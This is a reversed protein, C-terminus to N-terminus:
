PRTGITDSIFWTDCLRSGCDAVFLYDLKSPAFWPLVPHRRHHRFVPRANRRVGPVLHYIGLHDVERALTAMADESTARIYCAALPPSPPTLLPTCSVDVGGRSFIGVFSLTMWETADAPSQSDWSNPAYANIHNSDDIAGGMTWTDDADNSFLYPRAGGAADRQKQFVPKSNFGEGDLMLYTGFISPQAALADASTSRVYCTVSNPLPPPPPPSPPPPPAPPSHPPFIVAGAAACSPPHQACGAIPAFGIRGNARDFVTYYAELVAQGLINVTGRNMDVVLEYCQRSSRATPSQQMYTSPPVSLTVGGALEITIAPLSSVDEAAWYHRKVYAAGGLRITSAEDADGRQGYAQALAEVIPTMVTHFADQLLSLTSTGSDVITNGDACKPDSGFPPPSSSPTEMEVCYYLSGDTVPTYQISGTHLASSIGGITLTGTALAAGDWPCCQLSFVDALGHQRVIADLLTTENLPPPGGRAHSAGIMGDMQQTAPIEGLDCGQLQGGHLFRDDTQIGAFSTRTVLEGLRMVAPECVHGIWSTGDGYTATVDAGDCRGRYYRPCGVRPSAAIATFHSGTDFPLEYREGDIEVTVAHFAFVDGQMNAEVPKATAAAQRRSTPHARVVKRIPVEHVLSPVTAASVLVTFLAYM